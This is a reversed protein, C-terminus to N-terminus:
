RRRAVVQGRLAPRGRARTEGEEYAVLTLTSCAQRLEDLRLLHDPHTPHGYREQGTRYTTYVLLGGPALCDPLAALLPRHLFNCCTILAYGSPEPLWGSQLDLRRWTVTVGSASALRRGKALAVPSADIAEVTLGRTALWVADRGEGCALDLARGAAPLLDAHATLWGNAATGYRYGAGRYRDDWPSPAAVPPPRRLPDSM